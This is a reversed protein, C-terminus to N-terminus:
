RRIRFTGNITHLPVLNASDRFQGSFSGEYFGGANTPFSTVTVNFPAILGIRQYNHLYLRDIPYVGAVQSNSKFRFDILNNTAIHYGSIITTYPVAGQQFTFAMISDTMASTLSYDTGNLTYNIFQSASIGCATIDGANTVPSSIPVMVSNGQQQGAQDVGIVDCNTPSSTCTVFTVAFHGTSNVNAYRVTNNFNIIAYGNSVPVGTCNLLRGEVTIISSGTNTVTIVGLDTNQSLPSINQTYVSNMCPDLVDLVLNENSPVLGSVKGLSDTFGYAQIWSNAGPRTIRVQAHVIPSGHSNKLTASLTVSPLGYDCNWFSFHKVEGVYNSGNCVATGEEKWIGTAEDVYWLSITAPASSLISSPIPTTLTATKGPAIQLHSGTSTELEVAMMGYSALTVRNNNRDDAMFSGPVIASIDTATPDIYSAYINITGSYPASGSVVANAPLNLKAGNSLSIEGGNSADITGSLIKPILKIFVQNVGETAKFSRHGTFYGPKEVTVHAANRDLGAQLIRFYGKANTIATKSGVKVTVGAAPQGNEDIVNGQLTAILPSNGNNNSGPIDYSLEKQCNFGIITIIVLLFATLLRKM